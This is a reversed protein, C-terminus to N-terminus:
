LRDKPTITIPRCGDATVVVTDEIRVGGAGPLYVGPEVTVVHGASLTDTSVPSVSPAEHINLGVGHGTGHVFREALGAEEIVSRCARDIEAPAHKKALARLGVLVRVGEVGRAQVMAASWEGAHPGIAAVQRTLRSARAPRSM